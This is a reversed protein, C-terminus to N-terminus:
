NFEYNKRPTQNPVNFEKNKLNNHCKKKKNLLYKSKIGYFEIVHFHYKGKKKRFNYKKYLM